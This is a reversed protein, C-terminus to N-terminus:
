QSNGGGSSTESSTETLSSCVAPLDALILHPSIGKETVIIKSNEKLSAETVELRKLDQANGVFYQEAAENVLQIARAKGEAVRIEAEREGEARQIAAPLPPTQRPAPPPNAVEDLEHKEQASLRSLRRNPRQQRQQTGLRVALEWRDPVIRNLKLFEM